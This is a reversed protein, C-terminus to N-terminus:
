GEEFQCGYSASPGVSVLMYSFAELAVRQLGVGEVGSELCKHM